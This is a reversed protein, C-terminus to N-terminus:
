NKGYVDCGETDAAVVTVLVSKETQCPYEKSVVDVYQQAERLDDFTTKETLLGEKSNPDRYLLTADWRSNLVDPMIMAIQLQKSQGGALKKATELM